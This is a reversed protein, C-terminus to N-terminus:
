PPKPRTARCEALHPHAPSIKLLAQRCRIRAGTRLARCLLKQSLESTRTSLVRWGNQVLQLATVGLPEKVRTPKSRITHRGYMFDKFTMATVQARLVMLVADFASATSANLHYITRRKRHREFDGDTGAMEYETFHLPLRTVPALEGDPVNSLEPRIM